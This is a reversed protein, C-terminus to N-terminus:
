EIDAPGADPHQAVLKPAPRVMEPASASLAVRASNDTAQHGAIATVSVVIALGLAAVVGVRM